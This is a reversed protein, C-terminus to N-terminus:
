HKVTKIEEPSLIRSHKNEKRKRNTAGALSHTSNIIVFHFLFGGDIAQLFLALTDGLASFSPKANPSCTGSHSGSKKKQWERHM